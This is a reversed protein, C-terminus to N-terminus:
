KDAIEIKETVCSEPFDVQVPSSWLVLIWGVLSDYSGSRVPTTSTICDAYCAGYKSDHYQKRYQINIASKRCKGVM